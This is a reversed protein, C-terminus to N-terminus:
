FDSRSLRNRRGSGSGAGIKYYKKRKWLEALTLNFKCKVLDLFMEFTVDYSIITYLIITDTIM